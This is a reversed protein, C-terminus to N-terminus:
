RSEQVMKVSGNTEKKNNVTLKIRKPPPPPPYVVAACRLEQGMKVRGNTEKKCNVTLEVRELPFFLLGDQGKAWKSEQEM